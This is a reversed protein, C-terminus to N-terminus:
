MLGFLMDQLQSILIYGEFYGEIFVIYIYIHSMIFSEHSFSLFFVQELNVLVFLPWLYIIQALGSM